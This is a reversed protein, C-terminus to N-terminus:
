NRDITLTYAGATTGDPATVAILWNLPETVSNLTLTTTEGAGPSAAATCAQVAPVEPPFYFTGISLGFAWVSAEVGAAPTLTVLLQTQKPLPVDMAYFTTPGAVSLRQLFGWCGVDPEDGWGVDVPVGDGLDRTFERDDLFPFGIVTAPWDTLPQPGAAEVEELADPVEGTDALDTALVDSALGGDDGCGPSASVLTLLLAGGLARGSVPGVARGLRAPTLAPPLQRAPM